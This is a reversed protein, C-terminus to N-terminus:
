FAVYSRYSSCNLLWIDVSAKSFTFHTYYLLACSTSYPDDTLVFSILEGSAILVEAVDAHGKEVAVMLASLGALAYMSTPRRANM